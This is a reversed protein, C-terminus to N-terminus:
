ENLRLRWKASPCTRMGRVSFSMGASYLHGMQVCSKLSATM